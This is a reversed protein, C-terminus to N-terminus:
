FHKSEFYDNKRVEYVRVSVGLSYCIGKIAQVYDEYHSPIWVSSPAERQHKVKSLLKEGKWTTLLGNHYYIKGKVTHKYGFLKHLVKNKTNMDKGKVDWIVSYGIINQM